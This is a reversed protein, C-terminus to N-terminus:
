ELGARDTKVGPPIAEAPDPRGARADRTARPPVTVRQYVDTGDACRWRIEVTEGEFARVTRVFTM